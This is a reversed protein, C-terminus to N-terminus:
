VKQHFRWVGDVERRVLRGRIALYELHALTEAVAFRIEHVGLVAHNFLQQGIAYPTASAPAATAAVATLTHAIRADHHRSLEDLRGHWDTIPARHGPLALRVDLQALAPLTELYRGLPDPEGAPWLSINPTIGLLVHDGCLLLRDRADYFILHGDSHGPTLTVTFNRRGLRVSSGPAIPETAQPSPLTGRRTADTADLVATAVDDPVGCRRWFRAGVERWASDAGWMERGLAAERASLRVPIARGAEEQLWGAMGYHDPHSHTLVIQTVDGPGIGLTQWAHRWTARGQPTNLGTDVITWGDDGRLLYANVIRLAFPLPLRVQFIDDTIAVPATALPPASAATSESPKTM